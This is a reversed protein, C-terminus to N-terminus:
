PRDRRHHAHIRRRHLRYHRSGLPHLRRYSLRCLLQRDWVRANSYVSEFHLLVRKGGFEAPAKVRRRYYYETNNEINFGQTVLSSPVTVSRWENENVASFDYDQREDYAGPIDALEKFLFQWDPKERDTLLVACDECVCVSSPLQYIQRAHDM